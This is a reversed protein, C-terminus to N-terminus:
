PTVGIDSSIEESVKEFREALKDVFYDRLEDAAYQMKERDYNIHSAYIKTEGGDKNSVWEGGHFMNLIQKTIYTDNGQITLKATMAYPAIGELKVQVNDEFSGTKTQKNFYEGVELNSLLSTALVSIWKDQVRLQKISVFNDTFGDEIGAIILRNVEKILESEIYEIPKDSKGM